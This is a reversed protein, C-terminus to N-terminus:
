SVIRLDIKQGFTEVKEINVKVYDGLSYSHRSTNSQLMKSDEDFVYYENRPLYKIHCLGEINIDQLHIFLGFNTVGVIQGKYTNGILSEAFSCKLINLAEREAAEATREKTSCQSAVEILDDELYIRDMILQKDSLSVPGGKEKILSKIVRHVVLDPYRRIPSTFHTYSAYNLAYHESVKAEYTALSMSFLIQSHIIKKDRRDKVLDIISAIKKIDSGDEFSANIQRTRLFTEVAKIKTIDPKPHIRYLSPVDQKICIKAASINAALMFEEIMMHSDDRSSDIFRTIKENEIQPSYTPVELELSSRAIRNKKLRKYIKVLTNLSKEYPRKFQNKEMERFVTGYTLRAKSNIVAEFFTTDSLNGEDDVKTKCVLCFRDENPKLSCLDNSLVEPLMPIVRQSFYTSTGRDFAEHDLSTGMEVYRSVDAIAVYLILNGEKDTEGLVADDFDKANKGDITVFVKDRLDELRKDDFSKNKLQKIENVVSKPWDRKINHNTVAMEYALSFIDESDFVMELEAEALNEESPQKLITFKGFYGEEIKGVKRDRVIIKLDHEFGIPSTYLRKGRKFVKGIFETTNSTIVRQIKAWGKQTLSFQVLDGPMAKYLEKKGLKFQSDYKTDDIFFGKSKRSKKVIGRLSYAAQNDSKKM